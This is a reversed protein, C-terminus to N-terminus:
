NEFVSYTLATMAEIKSHGKNEEQVSKVKNENYSDLFCVALCIKARLLVFIALQFPMYEAILHLLLHQLFVSSWWMSPVSTGLASIVQAIANQGETKSESHLPKM